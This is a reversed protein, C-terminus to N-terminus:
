PVRLEGAYDALGPKTFVDDMFFEFRVDAEDAPTSPNGVM